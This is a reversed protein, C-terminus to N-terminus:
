ENDKPERIKIAKVEGNFDEIKLVKYQRKPQRSQISTILNTQQYDWPRSFGITVDWVQNKDDYIVEELGINTLNESEFVDTVYQIAIRVAEKVDM